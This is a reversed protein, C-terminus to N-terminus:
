SGDLTDLALEVVLPRHDSGGSTHYIYANVGTFEESHFVYDLRLLLPTPLHGPLSDPLLQVSDHVNAEGFDPFSFGMGRGVTRFTDTLHATILSYDHSLDPMNFDGLLLVPLTEAKVRQLLDAIEKGRQRHDFFAHGTMGPHTPHVNYVVILQGEVDIVVRQNGLPLEGFDYTWYTDDLIPYKSLIGQGMTRRDTANDTKGHIAQYPYADLTELRREFELSVEQLAVIDASIDQVIEPIREPTRNNALVNHTQITLSLEDTSPAATTRPMFMTGYSGIFLVAPLILTGAIRRQKFLLMMPLLILAPMWMVHAFTNFFAVLTSREGVMYRLVIHISVSLGYSGILILM